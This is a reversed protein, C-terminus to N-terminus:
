AFLPKPEFSTTAYRHGIYSNVRDLTQKVLHEYEYGSEQQYHQTSDSVVGILDVTPLTDLYTPLMALVTSLDGGHDGKTEASGSLLTDVNPYFLITGVEETGAVMDVILVQDCGRFFPLVAMGGIGGDFVAVGKPLAQEQLAMFVAHGIGDRGHLPNGICIVHLKM